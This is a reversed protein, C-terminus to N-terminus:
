TTTVNDDRLAASKEKRKEAARKNAECRDGYDQWAKDADHKLRDFIKREAKDFGQAEEPEELADFYSFAASMVRGLSEAPMYLTMLRVEEYIPFGPPRKTNAM